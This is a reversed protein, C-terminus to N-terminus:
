DGRSRDIASKIEDLKSAIEGTHKALDKLHDEATEVLRMQTAKLESLFDKLDLRDHIECKTGMADECQGDITVYETNSQIEDLSNGPLFSDRFGLPLLVPDKWRKSTTGKGSHFQIEV